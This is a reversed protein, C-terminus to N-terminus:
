NLFIKLSLKFLFLTSILKFKNLIFFQEPFKSLIIVNLVDRIPIKGNSNKFYMHTYTYTIHIYITIPDVVKKFFGM